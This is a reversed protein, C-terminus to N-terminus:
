FSNMSVSGKNSEVESVEEEENEHDSVLPKNRMWDRLMTYLSTDEKFNALNVRRDFM